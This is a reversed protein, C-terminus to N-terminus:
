GSTMKHKVLSHEKGILSAPTVKAKKDYRSSQWLTEISKQKSKDNNSVCPRATYSLIVMLESLLGLHHQAGPLGWQELESM